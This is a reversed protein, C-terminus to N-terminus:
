HSMLVPITMSELITRTAGGMIMERFRSHGYGGMVLLDSDLDHALSLIANGIDTKTKHVCVEVKVGHRALYTAIDAGPQDGHADADAKVNFIAVQVLDAEKLLPLADTVARTAARSADWAIMPRKGITPFSGAYPIILVPRGTNLVLYEPFDPLVSPSPEDRNTQGIVLLDSYRALLGMGGGAEDNVVALESSRVGLADTRVRFKAAAAEAREKLYNLHLSLNPDAAGLNGDQYIFRSVGTIAAGILHSESKRAIDAAIDVRMQCRESEDVHVLITKYAM